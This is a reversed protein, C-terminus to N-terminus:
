QRSVTWTSVRDLPLLPAQRGGRRYRRESELLRDVMLDRVTLSVCEYIQRTSLSEWPQALSYRAHRQISEQLASASLVRDSPVVIM